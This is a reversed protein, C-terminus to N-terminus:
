QEEILITEIVDGPPPDPNEPSPKRPTLSQVVDMGKVVKGIVTYRGDLEPQPALTIFFQSSGTNPGITAIGVMGAEDFGLDSSIEDDCWYGPGGVGTGTPDGALAVFEPDVLHFTVGDYWGERALFVFSNVNIPALDPYLKIVIDGKATRITATYQHDPILVQPPPSTYQRPKLLALRVFADFGLYSLRWESPYLIGNVIISPTGRLQMRTADEYSAMVKDQYTHEELAHTFQETDLGLEEAYGVLVKPMEEAPLRAWDRFREYLLDHMKWFAGQAGAAEAAEATILAKDHISTLPFHRYIIRLNDGHM